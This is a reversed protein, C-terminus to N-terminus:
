PGHIVITRVMSNEPSQPGGTNEKFMRSFVCVFCQPLVHNGIYGTDQGKEQVRYRDDIM